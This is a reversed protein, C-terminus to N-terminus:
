GAEDFRDLSCTQTIEALPKILNLQPLHRFPAGGGPLRNKVPSTAFGHLRVKGVMPVGDRQLEHRPRRTVLEQTTSAKMWAVNGSNIKHFTGNPTADKTLMAM